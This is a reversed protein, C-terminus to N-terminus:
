SSSSSGHEADAPEGTTDAADRLEAVAVDEEDSSGEGAPVDDAVPEDSSQVASQSQVTDGFDTHDVLETCMLALRAGEELLDLSKELTTDKKRAQVAIEELRLRAQEFTYREDAM